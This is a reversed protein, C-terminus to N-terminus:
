QIGGCGILFLAQVTFSAQEPSLSADPRAQHILYMPLDLHSDIFREWIGLYM